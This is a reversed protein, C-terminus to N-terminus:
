QEEVIKEEVLQLLSFLPYITSSEEGCKGNSM